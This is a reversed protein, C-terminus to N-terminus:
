SPFTIVFKTGLGQDSYLQVQAGHLELIRHTVALGLGTGKPKTTFFPEFIKEQIEKSIGKGNDSIEIAFKNEVQYGSIIVERKEEKSMDFSQSANIVINLLAQKLKDEDIALKQEHNINITFQILDKFKQEIPFVIEKILKGIETDKIQLRLPKAYDLFETILMNLRDIEKLIIKMLKKDDDSSVNQSLLEVSGSIGALPNRIEHAIGAALRGIAALKENEKQVAEQDVRDTIDEISLFHFQEIINPKWYISWAMSKDLKKFRYIKMIEKSENFIDGMVQSWHSNPNMLLNIDAVELLENFKSNSQVVLGDNQIFALGVPSYALLQDSIKKNQKQNLFVEGSIWAMSFFGVNNVIMSFVISVSAWDVKFLSMLSYSLSCLAALLFASKKGLCLGCLFIFIFNLFLFIQINLSSLIMMLNILLLDLSYSLFVIYPRKFIIDLKFLSLTNLLVGVFSLSGIWFIFSWSLFEKEYLLQYVVLFLLLGFSLIRTFQIQVHTNKELSM